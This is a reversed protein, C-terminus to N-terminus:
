ALSHRPTPLLILLNKDGGISHHDGEASTKPVCIWLAKVPMVFGFDHCIFCVEALPLVNQRLSAASELFRFYLLGQGAQSLQPLKYVSHVTRPHARAPTPPHRPPSPPLPFPWLCLSSSHCSLLSLLRSRVPVTM